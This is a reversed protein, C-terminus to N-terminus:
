INMFILLFEALLAVSVLDIRGPRGLSGAVVPGSGRCRMAEGARLGRDYVRVFLAGGLLRSSELGARRNSWGLRVRQAERMRTFEAYIDFLYRYTLQLLEVFLLPVRFWRLALALHNMPTSVGLVVVVLAGGLIRLAIVLGALLGDWHIAVPGLSAIVEEGSFLAQSAVAFITFGAPFAVALLQRRYPVHGLTMLLLMAVALAASFAWSSLYLNVALLLVTGAIKVRPDIRTLLGGGWAIDDHRRSAGAM